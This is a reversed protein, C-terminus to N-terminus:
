FKCSNSAKRFRINSFYLLFITYCIAVSNKCNTFNIYTNMIINKYIQSTFQINLAYKELMRLHTSAISQCLFFKIFFNILKAHQLKPVTIKM